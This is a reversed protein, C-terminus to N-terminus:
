VTVLLLVIHVSAELPTNRIFLSGVGVKNYTYAWCQFPGFSDDVFTFRHM